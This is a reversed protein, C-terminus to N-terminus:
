ATGPAYQPAPYLWFPPKCQGGPWYESPPKPTVAHVGQSAPRSPKQGPKVVDAHPPGHQYPLYLLTGPAGVHVAHGAPRYPSLLTM